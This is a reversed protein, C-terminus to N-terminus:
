INQGGHEKLRKKLSDLDIQYKKLIDAAYSSNNKDSIEIRYTRAHSEYNVVAHLVKFESNYEVRNFHTVFLGFAGKNIMSHATNKIEQYGLKENTSSYAENILVFSEYNINATINDIRERDDIFRSTNIDSENAPFHTFINRFPYIYASKAFIPAGAIFLLLNIGVARLYTTKGGGNAGIVFYFPNESDFKADNPVIESENLITIDIIGDAKYIKDCAVQPFSVPINKNLATKILDNISFYFDIDGSLELMENILANVHENEAVFSNNINYLASICNDLEKNIPIDLEKNSTTKIGVSELLFRLEELYSSRNDGYSIYSNDHLTINFNSIQSIVRDSERLYEDILSYINQTNYQNLKHKVCNDSIECGNLDPLNEICLLFQKLLRSYNFIHWVTGANQKCNEYISNLEDLLIRFHRVKQYYSEKAIMRFMEQRKILTETDVLESLKSITCDSLVKDLRLDRFVTLPIRGVSDSVDYLLSPKM